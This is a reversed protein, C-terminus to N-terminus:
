APKCNHYFDNKKVELWETSRKLLAGLETNNYLAFQEADAEITCYVYLMNCSKLDSYYQMNDRWWRVHEPFNIQQWVHRAEHRITHILDEFSKIKQTYVVIGGNKDINGKEGCIPRYPSVTIEMYPLNLEERLKNFITNAQTIENETFNM